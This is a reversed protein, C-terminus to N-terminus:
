GQKLYYSIIDHLEQYCAVCNCYVETRIGQLGGVTRGEEERDIYM